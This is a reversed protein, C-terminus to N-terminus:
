VKEGEERLNKKYTRIELFINKITIITMFVVLVIAMGSIVGFPIKASPSPDTATLLFYEGAGLGMVILCIMVVIHAIMKVVFQKMGHLRSVLMDIGVHRGEFYAIMTGLFAVWVFLYRSLEELAPFNYSFVYRAFANIFVMAVMGGMIIAIFVKGCTGIMNKMKNDQM